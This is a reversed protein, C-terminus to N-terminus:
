RGKQAGAEVVFPTTSTGAAGEPGNLTVLLLYEGPSLQSPLFTATLRDPAAPGGAERKVLRVEAPGVERGDQSLVKSEVRLDGKGLNYGVLSLRAERGPSLVPLSAPIYPEEGIMFPYPVQRDDKNAAERVMLWKGAPEPFFPPLLVRAAQSFAPVQVAVTKLASTGTLGNRVMVRLSYDGPPLDLHCFFKLGSQRLAPEVKGLDLGITQTVHDRVAGNSDMAYVYVEAPLTGSRAGGLLRPGDVEILVPVYATGSDVPSAGDVRFPAALVSAQLDDSEVGSVVKEAADLLKEHASRQAYPRPAYFGPRHVVRMGKGDKLEVRVKHYSGDRALGEPQFTLVYTVSTRDLMEKMAVTLDNTNEYFDGGTGKAMMFLSDKGGTRQQGLNGGAKLGGIDVAQIVCDARRLEELMKEVDSMTKTSGYRQESDVNWIEGFQSSANMRDQEEQNSTGQVLSSDFGESFYVVHKRGEISSLMRALEGVSRTMANVQKQRASREVKASENAVVQLFSAVAETKATQAEDRAKSATDDTIFRRDQNVALDNVLVLQLPDNARDTLEPAGLSDIAARIQRRDATFRLVLRAGGSGTYVAMGVLDSPHLGNVLGNAADRAALIAKPESFSLDFLILFHRRAAAPLVQRKAGAMGAPASAPAAALDLVEFGTVPMKKRGEYVEFDDATLGRVPENGRLVQVPVEVAVVDTVESFGQDQALSAAPPLAALLSLALAAARKM